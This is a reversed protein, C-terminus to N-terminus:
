RSTRPRRSQARPRLEPETAVVFQYAGGMLEIDYRDTEQEFGPSEIAQEDTAEVAKGDVKLKGAPGHTAVRVPVGEPRLVLVDNAGLGFHIPVTGLPHPLHLLVKSAGDELRVQSLQVGRFDGTLRWVGGSVNFEWPISANLAIEASQLRWTVPRYHRRSEVEVANAVVRVNPRPGTFRAFFLDPAAAGAKVTVFAAGRPFGLHGAATGRIPASSFTQPIAATYVGVLAM